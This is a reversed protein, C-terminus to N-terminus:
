GNRLILIWDKWLVVTRGELLTDTIERADDVSEPKIVCVKMSDAPTIKRPQKPMSRVVRQPKVVEEEPGDNSNMSSKFSSNKAKNEVEPEEEYDDDLDDDVDNLRLIGVLKDFM